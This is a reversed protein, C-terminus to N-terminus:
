RVRVIQDLVAKKEQDKTNEKAKANEAEKNALARDVPKALSQGLAELAPVQSAVLVPEIHNLIEVTRGSVDKVLSMISNKTNAAWGSIYGFSYKSTDLGLADSAIFAASEAAMEEVGYSHKESRIGHAWEHILTTIENDIADGPKIYIKNEITSYFGFAQGHTDFQKQGYPEIPIPCAQKLAELLDPKENTTLPQLAPFLEKGTTQSIDFVSVQHFYAVTKEEVVGKEEKLKSKFGPAAIKIAKEGKNVQRDLNQWSKYGTVMTANPKQAWILAQNYPSYQHFNSMTKLVSKWDESSQIKSLSGEVRTEIEAKDVM